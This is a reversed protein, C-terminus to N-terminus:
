VTAYSEPGQLPGSGLLSKNRQFFAYANRVATFQQQQKLDHQSIATCKFVSKLKM